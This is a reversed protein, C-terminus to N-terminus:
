VAKRLYLAAKWLLAPDDRMMGIARNCPNCLLGRVKKTRHDHDVALRKFPARQKGGCIACCGKQDKELARYTEESLGFKSKVARARVLGENKRYYAKQYNIIKKKNKRYYARSVANMEEKHERYYKQSYTEATSPHKV